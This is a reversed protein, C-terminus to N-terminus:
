NYRQGEVEGKGIQQGDIPARPRNIGRLGQININRADQGYFLKDKEQQRVCQYGKADSQNHSFFTM